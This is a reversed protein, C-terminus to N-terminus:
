FDQNRLLQAPIALGAGIAALTFIVRIIHEAASVFIEVANGPHPATLAFFGLLAEGFFAGPVMPICGALAVANCAPGLQGRLASVTCSTVIAAAFTAGELSWALDLGGTRVMLALAGAAACWPLARLGFNFLVGFGAAAAAGFLAQHLLHPLFDWM